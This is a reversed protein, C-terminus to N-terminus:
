AVTKCVDTMTGLFSQMVAINSNGSVPESCLLLHAKFKGVFPPKLEGLAYGKNSRVSHSLYLGFCSNVMKNEKSPELM